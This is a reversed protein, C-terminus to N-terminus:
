RLSSMEVKKLLGKLTNSSRNCNAKIWDELKLQVAKLEEGLPMSHDARCQTPNMLIKFLEQWIESQWYRKFPTGIRKMQDSDTVIASAQIYKGFLMCYVIGALGFYDTQFTWPRGEQIEYCDREDSAWEAIFQQGAPFQRTDITRGFDILSIGKCAWGGEGSPQYQSSWASSGGPVDELRLLCNDIKLDGHIFGITHMTILLRLLEVAFFAVLLEDMSGGQQSIGAPVANNVINLLSGQPCYQLVLFSEDRFAYLGHPQVVSRQLTEPLLPHLKRLVHYEWLNRPKVVKLAVYTINDEDLDLDDDDEDEDEEADVQAAGIDRALFVSGFGGEGLKASLQYKESGLRILHTASNDFSSGSTKRAKKFHRELSALLDADQDRLDIYRKDPFWRSLLTNLIPPDFPNCPNPPRFNNSLALTDVLSLKGTQEELVEVGSDDRSSVGQSTIPGSSVMGADSDMSGLEQEMVLMEPEEIQERLRGSPTSTGYTSKTNTYEFTRETIPTMVNIHGFRGGLPAESYPYENDDDEEPPLPVVHDETVFDEDYDEEDQLPEQKPPQTFVTPEQQGPKLPAFVNHRSEPRSFVRFAPAGSDATSLPVSDQSKAREHLVPKEAPKGHGETFVDRHPALPPHSDLPASTFV